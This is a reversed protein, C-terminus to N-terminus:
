LSGYRRSRIQAQGYFQTTRDEVTVTFAYNIDSLYTLEVGDLAGNGNGAYTDIEAGSSEGNITGQDYQLYNSAYSFVEVGPVAAVGAVLVEAQQGALVAEAGTFVPTPAVNSVPASLATLLIDTGSLRFELHEFSAADVVDNANYDAWIRYSTPSATVLKAAERSDRIMRNFGLRAEQAIEAIEQTDESGRVSSFMVQYLGVSIISLLMMAVLLEVLTFGSESESGAGRM